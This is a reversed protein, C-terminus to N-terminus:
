KDASGSTDAVIICDRLREITKPGIGKVDDLESISNFRGHSARYDIIARAKVPGIGPLRILEEMSANNIDIADRDQMVTSSKTTRLFGTDGSQTQTFAIPKHDIFRRHQVYMTVAGALVIIMLVWLARKENQSLNLM